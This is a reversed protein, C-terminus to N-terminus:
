EQQTRFRWLDQVPSPSVGEMHCGAEASTLVKVDHPPRQISNWILNPGAAQACLIKSAPIDQVVSYFSGRPRGCRCLSAVNESGQELSASMSYQRGPIHIAIIGSM